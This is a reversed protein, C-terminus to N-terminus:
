LVEAAVRPVTPEHWLVILERRLVTARPWLVTVAAWLVSLKREPPESKFLM